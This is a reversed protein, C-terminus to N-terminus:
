STLPIPLEIGYVTIFFTTSTATSAGIQLLNGPWLQLRGAVDDNLSYPGTVAGATGVGMACLLTPAVTLLITAPAFRMVSAQALSSGLAANQAAVQTLSVVPAATGIQSGANQLLGWQFASVVPTGVAAATFAVKHIVLIKGSGAPNWINPAGATGLAVVSVATSTAYIFANGRLTQEYYTPNLEGFIQEGQNGLRPPGEADDAYRSPGVRGEIRM